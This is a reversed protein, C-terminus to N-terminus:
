LGREVSIEIDMTDHSKLGGIQHISKIPCKKQM